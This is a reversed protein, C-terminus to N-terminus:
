ELIWLSFDSLEGLSLGVKRMEVDIPVHGCSKRNCVNWHTCAALQSGADRLTGFDPLNLFRCCCSFKFSRIVTQHDFMKVQYWFIGLNNQNSKTSIGLCDLCIKFSFRSGTPDGQHSAVSGCLSHFPDFCFYHFM